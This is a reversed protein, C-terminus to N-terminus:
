QHAENDIVLRCCQDVQAPTPTDLQGRLARLAIGDAKEIHSMIIADDTRHPQMLIASLEDHIRYLAGSLRDIERQQALLAHKAKVVATMADKMGNQALALADSQMKLLLDSM